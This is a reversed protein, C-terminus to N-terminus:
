FIGHYPADLNSFVLTHTLTQAKSGTPGCLVLLHAFCHCWSSAATESISSAEWQFIMQVERQEYDMNVSLFFMLLLM